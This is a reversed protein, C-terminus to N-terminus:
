SLLPDCPSPLGRSRHSKRTQANSQFRVKKRTKIAGPQKICSKTELENESSATMLFYLANIRHFIFISSPIPIDGIVPFHRIFKHSFSAIDETKSFDPIKTPELDVHFLWTDSLVYRIKPNHLRKEQVIQLVREKTICSSSSLTEYETTIQELYNNKNMYLFVCKIADMPERIYNEQISLLREEERIWDMRKVNTAIQNIHYFRIYV